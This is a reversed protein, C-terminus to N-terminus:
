VFEVCFIRHSSQFRIEALLNWGLSKFVKFLCAIFIGFDFNMQM